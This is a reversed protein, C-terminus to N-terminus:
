VGHDEVHFHLVPGCPLAFCRYLIAAQEREEELIAAAAAEVGDETEVGADGDDVSVSTSKVYVGGRVCWTHTTAAIYLPLSLFLRDAGGNHPGNACYVKYEFGSCM